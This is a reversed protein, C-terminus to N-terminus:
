WRDTYWHAEREHLRRQHNPWGELFAPVGSAFALPNLRLGEGRWDFVASGREAQLGHILEHRLIGEDASQAADIWIVGPVHFGNIGPPPAHNEFVLSGSLLTQRPKLEFDDAFLYGVAFATNVLDLEASARHDVYRLHFLSHTLVWDSYLSDDFVPRGEISRRTVLSAKQVLLKGPLALRVDRGTMCYGAHAMVGAAAGERLAERLARGPPEHGFVLKGLFSATVHVGMQSAVLKPDTWQAHAPLARLVLTLLMVVVARKPM